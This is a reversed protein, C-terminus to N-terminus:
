PATPRLWRSTAECPSTTSVRADEGAPPVISRTSGLRRFQYDDKTVWVDVTMNQFMAASSSRCARGVRHRHAPLSLDPQGDHRRGHPICGQITKDQSLKMVDAVIKNIDIAGRCTTPRPATSTTKVSRKLDTIWTTPDVGATKLM